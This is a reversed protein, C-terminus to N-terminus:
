IGLSLIVKSAVSNLQEMSIGEVLIINKISDVMHMMYAVICIAYESSGFLCELIQTLCSNGQGILGIEWQNEILISDISLM